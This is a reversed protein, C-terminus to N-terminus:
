WDTAEMEVSVNMAWMALRSGGNGRTGLERHPAQGMSQQQAGAVEERCPVLVCRCRERAETRVRTGESARARMKERHQM